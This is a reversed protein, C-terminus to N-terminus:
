LASAASGETNWRRYPGKYSIGGILPRQESWRAPDVYLSSLSDEGYATVGRAIASFPVSFPKGISTYVPWGKYCKPVKRLAEETEVAVTIFGEVRYGVGVLYPGIDPDHSLKYSLENKAELVPMTPEGCYGFLPLVVPLLVYATLAM